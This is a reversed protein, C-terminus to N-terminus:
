SAVLRRTAFEGYAMVLERVERLALRIGRLSRTDLRLRVTSQVIRNWRSVLAVDLRGLEPVITRVNDVRLRCSRVFDVVCLGVAASLAADNSDIIEIFYEIRKSSPQSIHALAHLARQRLRKPARFTNALKAVAEELRIDAEGGLDECAKLHAELEKQERDDGFSHGLAHLVRTETLNFVFLRAEVNDGAAQVIARLAPRLETDKCSAAYGQLLQGVVADPTPHAALASAAAIRIDRFDSELENGLLDVDAITLLGLAGRSVRLSDLAAVKESRDRNKSVVEMIREYVYREERVLLPLLRLGLLRDEPVPSSLLADIQPRSTRLQNRYVDEADIIRAWQRLCIELFARDARDTLDINMGAAMLAKAATGAIVAQPDQLCARVHAWCDKTLAPVVDLAHVAAYRVAVAGQLGERLAAIAEPGRLDNVREIVGFIVGRIEPEERKCAARLGNIVASGLEVKEGVHGALDVYSAAINPDPSVIKEALLERLANSGSANLLKAIRAAIEQRAGPDVLGPGAMASVVARALLEQTEETPVDAELACDFAFLFRDLTIQDGEDTPEILTRILKTSDSQDALLGAIIAIVERWRAHAAFRPLEAISGSELFGVAAYYELFSHHLFSVAAANSGGQKNHIVLLGTAEAVVQVFDRISTIVKSDNPDRGLSRAIVECVWDITPVDVQPSQYTELAVAGLRHRLDAESLVQQKASRNRVSVLTQVAQSYVRHRKAALPGSNAYIMVLLTLLLPNRSIRRIGPNTKCDDMLREVLAVDEPRLEGLRIKDGSYEASLVKTALTRMESDTLGRLHLAILKKPMKLLHVAAPRSTLAIRNGLPAQLALIKAIEDFLQVRRDMAAVEDLGDFFFAVHGNAMLDLLQARSLPLGRRAAIQSCIEIMDSSDIAAAEVLPVFVPIHLKYWSVEESSPECYSLIENKLFCTKGSGPDGLVLINGYQQYLSRAAGTERLGISPVGDRLQGELQSRQADDLNLSDLMDNVAQRYATSSSTADGVDASAPVYMHEVSANPFRVGLAALADYKLTHFEQKCKTVYADRNFAEILITGSDERPQQTGYRVLALEPRQQRVKAIAEDSASLVNCNKDVLYFWSSRLRDQVLVFLRGAGVLHSATVEAADLTELYASVKQPTHANLLKALDGQACTRFSKRRELQLALRRADDAVEGFTIIAVSRHGETDMRTNEIEVERASLVHGQAGICRVHLTASSETIVMEAVDTATATTDASKTESQEPVLGALKLLWLWDPAALPELLYAKNVLPAARPRQFEQQAEGQRSATERESPLEFMHGHRLVRSEQDFEAPLNTQQRWVGHESQWAHMAVHLQEDMVCVAFSNYYTSPSTKDLPAQYGAGFGLSRLGKKTTDIKVKHEHGHLYISHQNYLLSKLPEQTPHLFWTIPHHALVVTRSSKGLKELRARVAHTPAPATLEDSTDKDSFLATNVGVVQLTTGDRGRITTISGCHKTPDLGQINARTLFQAYNGFGNARSARIRRGDDTDQFFLQQRKEGLSTWPTPLTAECDLDHNGPIAVFTAADVTALRRLPELIIREFEKYEREAGSYALDGTLFVADVPEDALAVNIADVLGLIAVQQAEDGKGIHLDTLHLWRVSM